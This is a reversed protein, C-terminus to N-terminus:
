DVGAQRDAPEASMKVGDREIRQPIQRRIRRFNRRWAAVEFHGLTQFLRRKAWPVGAARQNDAFLRPVRRFNIEYCAVYLDLHDERMTHTSFRMGGAREDASVPEYFIPFIAAPRESLREVLARTRAVDDPTEGPLGLILSFVPFFGCRSLKEAAQEISGEWDDPDMGALKGSGISQVLRGNASEAGLNVWLYDCRSEWTLLRRVERLEDDSFQLVSSINGHDIQMFGIGELRRMAELLECLAAPSVKGGSGGYRFFDESSSVVSRVGAALNTEVDACILDIPLHDMRKRAMTCFRCGRGCGRSLEVVGMLSAGRIPRISGAATADECVSAPLPKGALADAILGPGLDEFYGEFITDFGQRDAAARDQAWQWAGAGGGVVAFGHRAKAARIRDMMRDTWEATYLRGSWFATTTTNSMGMGLPDSSSVAVLKTWPGLLGALREPTTCVVDTESLSGDLLAAEVRRLGLPSTGARGAADTPAPPSMLRRMLWAPVHTTQMTAFIGEFLARYGASLTRDAVLVVAPTLQRDTRTM